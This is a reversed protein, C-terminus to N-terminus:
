HCISSGNVARPVALYFTTGEHVQSEAWMRGDHLEVIARAIALGLGSGGDSLNLQYFRQFITELEEAPIGPGTDHVSVVVDNDVIWGRITIRTAPPTHEHAHAIVNVVAQRLRHVDVCAPLSEAFDLALSQGKQRLLLDTVVMRLDTPERQLQLSGAQLQNHVLLDDILRRLHEINRQANDVLGQEDPRLRDTASADLLILAARAATLPTRLDHSISTVFTTRLRDLEELHLAAIRAQHLADEARKYETIDEVTGEYYLVEGDADRVVKASERVYMRAGDKTTWAAELGTITGDREIQERFQRRTYGPAYAATKLNRALLEEVSAYGLSQALVPNAVLIRGDPTTRYLGITSTEFLSRFHMESARLAAEARQRAALENRLRQNAANLAATRAHVRRELEGRERELSRATDRLEIETMVGDALDKLIAIERATWTRAQRDIVCFSGLVYGDATILPIGAYAVVGLDSIAPNDRVLPHQRADPIILPEGSVVTHQCFSHSLSTERRSAWPEPLGICSKFFQRDAAVLAVLAVPTTLVTSALRTLRDFAPEVPTDLLALRQLAALREPNRIPDDQVRSGADM